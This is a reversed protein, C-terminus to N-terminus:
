YQEQPASYGPPGNDPSGPKTLQSCANHRGPRKDWGIRPDYIQAALMTLVVVMGFSAAGPGAIIQTVGPFNAMASLLIVVFVDLMSWHGIFNVFLYLRTRSRQIQPGKWQKRGMLLMLVLLKTVPVVVSAVFVIIALDPSGLQWLELVGGLITHASDGTITRVQMVPLLNAPLYLLGASILLAWVRGRMNPQRRFFTTHCRECDASEGAMEDQSLLQVYGCSPCSAMAAPDGGHPLTSVKVLGANEAFHWIRHADVRELATFLFALAAFAWTAPGLTLQAIGSFKVMAVIIGLMLVPMMGWKHSFHLLRMGMAFDLPLRASRIAMLAWLTVVLQTLPMWFGFLGTLVAVVEHGQTWTLLLAEPLSAAVHLGQVSIQAIPYLNAIGFLVLGALVLAIWGSTGTRSQRYLEANCLSCLALEGGHLDTREHLTACQGCAILAPGNGETSM